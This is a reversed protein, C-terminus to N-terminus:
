ARVIRRLIKRPLKTKLIDSIKATIYKELRLQIIVIDKLICYIHEQKKLVLILVATAKITTKRHSIHAKEIHHTYIIIQSFVQKFKALLQPHTRLIRGYM